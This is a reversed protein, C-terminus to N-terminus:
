KRPGQNRRTLAREIGTIQCSGSRLRKVATTGHDHWHDLRPLQPINHHQRNDHGDWHDLRPFRPVGHHQRKEHGHRRDLWPFRPIHDSEAGRGADDARHPRRSALLRRM